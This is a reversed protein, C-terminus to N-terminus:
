QEQEKQDVVFVRTTQGPRLSHEEVAVALISPSVPASLFLKEDLDIKHKAFSSVMYKKLRLGVGDVDVAQQLTVALDPSLPISKNAESIRYSTPYINTYAERIIQLARKELPLKKYHTINKKFSDGTPSALRLTVSPIDTPTVILTYVVNNCVVFLESPTDAYIYDNGMDKIKFKVFGNNGSFHGTMGKEQSFILDNMPGPCVIRNIDKNSLEVSTPVEAPIVTDALCNGTAAIILATATLFSKRIM